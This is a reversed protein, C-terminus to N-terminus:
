CVDGLDQLHDELWSMPGLTATMFPWYLFPSFVHDSTSLSVTRCPMIYYYEEEYVGAASVQSFMCSIVKVPDDRGKLRASTWRLRNPHAAVRAMRSVTKTVEESASVRDPRVGLAVRTEIPLRKLILELVDAYLVPM